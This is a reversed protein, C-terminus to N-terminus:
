CEMWQHSSRDNVGTGDVQIYLVQSGKEGAVIQGGEEFVFRRGDEELREIRRGEEIAMQHVKKRSVELGTFKRLFQAAKEYSVEVAAWLARERVGLTMGEGDALGIAEDLPYIDEGCGQCRLRVRNVQVTGILTKIRKSGHGNRVLVSGCKECVSMEKLAEEKAWELRSPSLDTASMSASNDIMLIYHKGAGTRGHLLAAACLALDQQELPDEYRAILQATLWECRDASQRLSLRANRVLIAWLRRLDSRYAEASESSSLARGDSQGYVHALAACGRAAQGKLQAQALRDKQTLGAGYRLQQFTSGMSAMMDAYPACQRLRALMAQEGDRLDPFLPTEGLRDEPEDGTALESFGFRDTEALLVPETGPLPAAEVVGVGSEGFREADRTARAEPGIGAREPM